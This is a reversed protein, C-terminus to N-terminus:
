ANKTASDIAPAVEYFVAPVSFVSENLVSAVPIVSLSQAVRPGRRVVRATM